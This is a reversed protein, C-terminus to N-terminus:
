KTLWLVCVRNGAGVEPLECDDIVGTGHPGIDGEPRQLVASVHVLVGEHSDMQVCLCM